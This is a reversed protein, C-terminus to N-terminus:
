ISGNINEEAKKKITNANRGELKHSHPPLSGRKESWRYEFTQIACHGEIARQPLWKLMHAHKAILVYKERKKNRAYASACVSINYACVTNLGAGAALVSEKCCM